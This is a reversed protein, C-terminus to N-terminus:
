EKEEKKLLEDVVEKKFDDGHKELLWSLFIKTGDETILNDGDTIGAKRFSKKPETLFLTIFKEKIDAMPTKTLSYTKNIVNYLANVVRTLAPYDEDKSEPWVGARPLDYGYHKVCFSNKDLGLLIFIKDNDGSISLYNSRVTYTLTEAGVTFIVTDDQALTGKIKSTYTM